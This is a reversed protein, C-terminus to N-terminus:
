GGGVRIWAGHPETQREPTPGSTYPQAAGTNVQTPECVQPLFLPNCQSSSQEDKKKSVLTVASWVTLFLPRVADVRPVMVEAAGM